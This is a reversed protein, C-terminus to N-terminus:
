NRYNIERNKQFWIEIDYESWGVARGALKVKPPLIGEKEWRWLATKSVSLLESLESSRIIKLKPNYNSPAKNAQTKRPIM